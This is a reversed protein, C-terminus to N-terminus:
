MAYPVVVIETRGISVCIIMVEVGVDLHAVKIVAMRGRISEEFTFVIKSAAISFPNESIPTSQGTVTPAGMSGRKGPFSSLGPILTFRGERNM